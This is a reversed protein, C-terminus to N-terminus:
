RVSDRIAQILAITSPPDPPEGHTVAYIQRPFNMTRDHPRRTPPPRCRSDPCPQLASAPPSSPKCLSWTTARPRSARPSDKKRGVRPRLRRRDGTPLGSVRVAARDRNKPCLESRRGAVGGPTDSNSRSASASGNPQPLSRSICFRRLCRLSPTYPSATSCPRRHARPCRSRSGFVRCVRASRRGRASGLQSTTIPWNRLSSSM